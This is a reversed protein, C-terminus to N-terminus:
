TGLTLDHEYRFGSGVCFVGPKRRNPRATTLVDRKDPSCHVVRFCKWRLTSTGLWAALSMNISVNGHGRARRAQRESYVVSGYKKGRKSKFVGSRKYAMPWYVSPNSWCIGANVDLEKDRFCEEASGPVDIIESQLLTKFRRRSIVWQSHCLM